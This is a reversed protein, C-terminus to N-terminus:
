RREEEDFELTAINFKGDNRIEAVRGKLVRLRKGFPYPSSMGIAHEIMYTYGAPVYYEKVEVMQGITLMRANDEIHFDMSRM